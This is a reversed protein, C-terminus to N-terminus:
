DLGLKEEEEKTIMRPIPRINKLRVWQKYLLDKLQSGWSRMPQSPQLLEKTPAKVGKLAEEAMKFSIGFKQKFQETKELKAYSAAHKLGGLELFKKYPIAYEAINKEPSSTLKERLSQYQPIVYTDVSRGILVQYKGSDEQSNTYEAAIYWIGNRAFMYKQFNYDKPSKGKQAKLWGDLDFIKGGMVLNPESIIPQYKLESFNLKLIKYKHALEDEKDSEMLLCCVNTPDAQDIAFDEVKIILNETGFPKTLKILKLQPNSDTIRVRYLGGEEPALLREKKLMLNILLNQDDLWGIKRFVYQDDLRLEGRFVLSQNYVDAWTLFQTDDDEYKKKVIVAIKAFPENVGDGNLQCSVAIRKALRDRLAVEFNKRLKISGSPHFVGLYANNLADVKIYAIASTSFDAGSSINPGDFDFNRVRDFSLGDVEQPGRVNNGSFFSFKYLNTPYNNPHNYFSYYNFVGSLPFIAQWNPSFDFPLQALGGGMLQVSARSDLNRKDIDKEVVTDSDKFLNIVDSTESAFRAKDMYLNNGFFLLGQTYLLREQQESLMPRLSVHFCLFFLVNIACLMKYFEM